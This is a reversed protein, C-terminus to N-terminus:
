PLGGITLVVGAGHDLVTPLLRATTTSSSARRDRVYFYTAIGGVVLGSIAFVNGLRAYRDGRSELNELDVLDHRTSTPAKEIDSQVGSAASWLVLGLVVLAGGGAMGALELRHNDAHGIPAPETVVVSPFSARPASAPEVPPPPPTAGFLPAIGDLKDTLTGTALVMTADRTARGKAIRRVTIELGGPRPTVTTIVIEDVALMGLVEDKCAPAEPECGVATAADTFNLEGASAQPESALALKVVAADVRARTAADARGESQLVLLKHSEAAAPRSSALALALILALTRFTM